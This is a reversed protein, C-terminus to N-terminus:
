GEELAQGAQRWHGWQIAVRAQVRLADVLCVQHQVARAAVEMARAGQGTELHAQALCPLVVLVRVERLALLSTLRACAAPQGALLDREAV